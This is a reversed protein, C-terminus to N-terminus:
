EAPRGEISVNSTMRVYINGDPVKSGQRNVPVGMVYPKIAYQDLRYVLPTYGVDEQIIRELNKYIELRAEPDPESRGALVLDDFETNSWAQRKGSSKRSYFMDGYGNDADPYDYWWRLFFIQWENKFMQEQFNSIPIASIEIDMNLNEKLQAVIDNAMLDANYLEENARMWMTIKPWSQGGEFETGVLAEMALAPDFKQIDAIAQDEFFGFIGPPTMCYAELSLGKTVQVIRSRDVAHAVAKRVQINDFPPVGNSSLLMWIGPYVYPTLQQSLEPDGMYRDLDAASVNTLDLRQDGAGQEYALVTNEAPIIPDVLKTLRIREADWYGENKSFEMKVDHEWNDLKWPGNSVLPVEGSAWKDGHEEVSPRHAPVTAYYAVKQLFNGRPGELTVELTWDDIAKLGLEAPDTIEGNNYKEANKVDFLIFPYPTANEPNLLRAWSWIFDHSTVPDGNSWGQNDKRISFTYVSGDENAEFREAWDPVINLDQDFTLLGAFTAEEAECYLDLNWDFSTPDEESGFHYLVQEEGAQPAPAAGPAAAVGEGGARVLGAAAATGAASKLLRRRTLWTARMQETLTEKKAQDV